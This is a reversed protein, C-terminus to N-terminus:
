KSKREEMVLARNRLRIRWKAYQEISLLGAIDPKPSIDAKRRGDHFTAYTGIASEHLAIFKYVFPGAM